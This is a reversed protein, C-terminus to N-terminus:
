LQQKQYLADGWGDEIFQVKVNPAKAKFGDLLKKTFLAQNYLQSGEKESKLLAAYNQKLPAASQVKLTVNTEGNDGSGSDTNDSGCSAFCFMMVVAIALTLIKTFLKNM